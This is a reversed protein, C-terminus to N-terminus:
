LGVIEKTTTWCGNAIVNELRELFPCSSTLDTASKLAFLTFWKEDVHDDTCEGMEMLTKEEVFEKPPSCVGFPAKKMSCNIDLIVVQFKGSVGMEHFKKFKNGYTVPKAFEAIVNLANECVVNSASKEFGFNMEANYVLQKDIEAGVVEFGLQLRLFESLVGVGIGLCLVRPKELNTLHSAVLGLGRVVSCSFVEVLVSNVVEFDAGDILALEYDGMETDPHDGGIRKLQMESQIFSPSAKFYLRRRWQFGEIQEDVVSSGDQDNESIRPGMVVRRVYIDNKHCLFKTKLNGQDVCSPHLPVLIKDLTALIAESNALYLFRACSQNECLSPSNGVLFLRSVNFYMEVLRRHGEKTSFVWDNERGNPVCIAAVVPDDDETSFPSDMFAVRLKETTLKSSERDALDLPNEPFYEVFQNSILKEYVSM